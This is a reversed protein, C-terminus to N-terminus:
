SVDAIRSSSRYSPDPRLAMTLHKRRCLSQSPAPGDGEPTVSNRRGGDLRSRGPEDARRWTEIMFHCEAGSSRGSISKGASGM